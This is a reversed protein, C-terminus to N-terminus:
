FRLDPHPVWPHVIRSPCTTSGTTTIAIWDLHKNVRSYVSPYGIACHRKYRSVVGIQIMFNQSADGATVLPGGSDGVCFDKGVVNGGACIDTMTIYKGAVGLRSKCQKNPLTSVKLKYLEDPQPGVTSLDGWGTVIAEVNEYLDGPPPLCVPAIKNDTSFQIPSKLKVLAIDNDVHKTSNYNPHIEIQSIERRETVTTASNSNWNHEGIVIRNNSPSEGKM